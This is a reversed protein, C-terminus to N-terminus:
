IGYEEALKRFAPISNRITSEAVCYALRVYGEIGFDDSPVLILEYKKARESFKVADPEPSKMFLYFAGDPKICDFGAETLADYLLDRNKKYVSIDSTQGM